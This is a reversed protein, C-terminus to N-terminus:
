CPELVVRVRCTVRIAVGIRLVEQYPLFLLIHTKNLIILSLITPLAIIFIMPQERIM